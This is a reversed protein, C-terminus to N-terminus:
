AFRFRFSSNLSLCSPIVSENPYGFMIIILNSGQMRNKEFKNTEALKSLFYDRHFSEYGQNQDTEKKVCELGLLQHGVVRKVQIGIVLRGVVDIGGIYTGKNVVSAITKAM